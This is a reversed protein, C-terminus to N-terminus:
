NWISIRLLQSLNLIDFGFFGRLIFLSFQQEVTIGKSDVLKLLLLRNRFKFKFWKVEILIFITVSNMQWVDYQWMLTKVNYTHTSSLLNKDIWYLQCLRISFFICIAWSWHSWNFHVFLLINEKRKWVLLQLFFFKM